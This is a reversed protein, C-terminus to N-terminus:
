LMCYENVVSCLLARDMRDACSQMRLLAQFLSEIGDERWQPICLHALGSLCRVWPHSDFEDEVQELMFALRWCAEDASQEEQLLGACRALVTARVVDSEHIQSLLSTIVKLMQEASLDLNPRVMVGFSKGKSAIFDVGYCYNIQVILLQEILDLLSEFIVFLSEGQDPLRQELDPNVREESTMLVLKIYRELFTGSENRQCQVDFAQLDMLLQQLEVAKYRKHMDANIM